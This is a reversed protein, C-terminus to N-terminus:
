PYFGALSYNCCAQFQICDCDPVEQTCGVSQFPVSALVCLMITVKVGAWAQREAVAKLARESQFHFPEWSSPKPDMLSLFLLTQAQQQGQAGPSLVPVM